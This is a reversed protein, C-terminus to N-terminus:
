LNETVNDGEFTVDYTADMANVEVATTVWMGTGTIVKGNSLQLEITVNTMGEFDTVSLNAVDTLQAKIMAASPKESYGHIGDMGPLTERTTTSLRYVPNARLPYAVGDITISGGGALRRTTDSM